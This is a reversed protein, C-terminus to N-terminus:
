DIEDYVDIVDQLEDNRWIKSGEIRWNGENADSTSHTEPDYVFDQECSTDATQYSLTSARDSSVVNEDTAAMLRQITSAKAEDCVLSCAKCIRKGRIGLLAQVYVGPSRGSQVDQTRFM